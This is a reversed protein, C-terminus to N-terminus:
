YDKVIGIVYNRPVWTNLPTKTIIYNGEYITEVEKNDSMLYVRNNEIKGVRKVILDYESHKSIVIDGVKFNETKLIILDQGDKLTPYMSNGSVVAPMPLQNEGFQSKLNVNVNSYDYKKSILKVDSEISELTSDPSKIADVLYNLIGQEMDEPVNNFPVTSAEVSIETGNTEINITVSNNYQNFIISSGAILVVLIIGIVIWSNKNL